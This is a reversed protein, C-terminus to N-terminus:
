NAILARGDLLEIVVLRNCCNLAFPHVCREFDAVLADLVLALAVQVAGEVHICTQVLRGREATDQESFIVDGM